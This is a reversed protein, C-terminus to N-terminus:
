NFKYFPNKEKLQIKKFFHFNLKYELYLDVRSISIGVNITPRIGVNFLDVSLFIQGDTISVVNTSIYASVNFLNLPEKWFANICIFFIERILKATPGDEYSFLCKDILKHKNPPIM